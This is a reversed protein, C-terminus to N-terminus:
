AVLWSTDVYVANGSPLTSTVDIISLVGDTGVQVRAGGTATWGMWSHYQLGPAFGAPLSALPSPSSGSFSGSNRVWAGSLYAVGNRRRVKNALSGARWFSNSPSLSIWGTDEFLLVGGSATWGIWRGTPAEYVLDGVALTAQVDTIKSCARVAGSQMLPRATVKGAAISAAGNDVTVDALPIEWLGTDGTDRQLTSAGAGPTGARVAVTVDWTSRDLRLVVTDVRTSGSTNAGITLNIEATGSQWAHGQVIATKGARVHVERGSSNAYVVDTPSQFVGDSNWPALHGYETDTV